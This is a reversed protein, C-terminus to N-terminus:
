NDEARDRRSSPSGQHTNPFILNEPQERRGDLLASSPQPLSRTKIGSARVGEAEDANIKNWYRKITVKDARHRCIPSRGLPSHKHVRGSCNIFRETQAQKENDHRRRLMAWLVAALRLLSPNIFVFAAVAGSRGDTNRLPAPLGIFDSGVTNIHVWVTERAEYPFAQLISVPLLM